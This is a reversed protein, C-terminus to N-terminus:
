RVLSRLIADLSLMTDHLLYALHVAVILHSRLFHLCTGAIWQRFAPTWWPARTMALILSSYPPALLLGIAVAPWLGRAPFLFWVSLLLTLTSVEVLTRRLNDLIKWRSIASLPNPVRRRRGDPVVNSLWRVLQWDGRMWRHRRRSYASFHSPYDDVVEVDS